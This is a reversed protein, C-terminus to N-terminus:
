AAAALGPGPDELDALLREYVYARLWIASSADLNAFQVGYRESGSGDGPTVPYPRRLTAPLSLPQSPQGEFDLSLEVRLTDGVDGLAAPARIMAGTLSLDLLLGECDKQRGTAENRVRAPANAAVRRSNRIIMEQFETPYSLHLYPFPDTCCRLM